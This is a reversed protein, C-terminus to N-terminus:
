ANTAGTPVPAAPAFRAVASFRGATAAARATGPAVPAVGSGWIRCGTVAAHTSVTAGGLVRRQGRRCGNAAASALTAVPTVRM